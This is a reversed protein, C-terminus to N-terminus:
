QLALEMEFQELYNELGIAKFFDCVHGAKKDVNIVTINPDNSALNTVLETAIGQRRHDKCVAIQQLRKTSPKYVAYGVLKDEIYAGISNDSVQTKDLTSKSNQWTPTIDWFSELESWNYGSLEKIVVEKNFKDATFEGKFCALERKKVFGSREYSKIAQINNTIVELIVKDIGKETLVPLSYEYMKKTLGTGRKDPIVGTGGNYVIRQGDITDYGHLMFAIPNGDEFVGISLELDTNDALMKARLQDENMKLPVFYDSFAHNFVSAIEKTATGKLSKIEM